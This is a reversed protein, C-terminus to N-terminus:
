CHISSYIFRRLVTLLMSYTKLYYNRWTAVSCSRLNKNQDSVYVWMKVAIVTIACSTEFRYCSAIDKVDAGKYWVWLPLRSREKLSRCWHLANVSNFSAPPPTKEILGLSGVFKAKDWSDKKVPKTVLSCESCM